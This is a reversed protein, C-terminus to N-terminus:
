DKEAKLDCQAHDASPHTAIKKEEEEKQHHLL